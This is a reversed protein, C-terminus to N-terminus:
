QIKNKIINLDKDFYTLNNTDDEVIYINNKYSLKIGFNKINESSTYKLVKFTNIDLIIISIGYMLVLENYNNLLDFNLVGQSILDPYTDNIHDYALEYYSHIDPEQDKKLVVLIHEYETEIELFCSNNKEEIEYPNNKTINLDFPNIIKTIKVYSPNDTTNLEHDSIYVKVKEGYDNTYM